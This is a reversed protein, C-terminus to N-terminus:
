YKSLGNELDYIKHCSSCLRLWDKLNRRYKHDKNAWHIKAGSLGSKDCHECTGSKGLERGVWLHLPIYGVGDGKWMGNRAGRVFSRLGKNWPAHGKKFREGEKHGKKFETDPSWHHGKTGNSKCAVSCYKAKDLRYGQVLFLKKCFLCKKSKANYIKRGM